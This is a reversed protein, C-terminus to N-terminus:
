KEKYRKYNRGYLLPTANNPVSINIVTIIDSQIMAELM